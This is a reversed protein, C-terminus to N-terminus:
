MFSTTGKGIINNIIIIIIIIDVLGCFRSKRGYFDTKSLVSNRTNELIV